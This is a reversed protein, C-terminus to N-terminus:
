MATYYARILGDYFYANTGNLDPNAGRIWNFTLFYRNSIQTHARDNADTSSRDFTCRGVKLKLRIAVDNPTRVYVDSAQQSVPFRPGIQWEKLLKWGLNQSRKADTSDDPNIQRLSHPNCADLLIGRPNPWDTNTTVYCFPAAGNWSPETADSPEEDKWLRMFIPSCFENGNALMNIRVKFTIYLMKCYVSDGDFMAYNDDGHTLYANSGTASKNDEDKFRKWLYQTSFFGGGDLTLPWVDQAYCNAAAANCRDGIIGEIVQTQVIPIQRRPALWSSRSRKSM